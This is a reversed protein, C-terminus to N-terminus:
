RSAFAFCFRCPNSDIRDGLSSRQRRKKKIRRRLYSREIPWTHVSPDLHVLPCLVDELLPVLELLPALDKHLPLVEHIDVEKDLALLAGVPHELKQNDEQVVGGEKWGGRGM